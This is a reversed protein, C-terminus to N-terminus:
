YPKRGRFNGQPDYSCTVFEERGKRTRGCGVRKTTNWVIQTFHGCQGGECKNKAYNYFPKEDDAWGKVVQTPTQTMGMAWALNEGYPPNSRHQMRGIVNAQHDSWEQAFAALKPDWELPGVGVLARARNHEDVMEKAEAATMNSGVESVPASPTAEIPTPGPVADPPTPPPQFAPPVPIPAPPAPTPTPTPQPPPIMFGPFPPQPQPQPQPMMGPFPPMPRPQPPLAVPPRITPAVPPSPAAPPPTEEKKKEPTPEKKQERIAKIVTVLLTSVMTVGLAIGLYQRINAPLAKALVYVGGGILLLLTLVIQLWTLVAM